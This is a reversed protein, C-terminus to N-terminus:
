PSTVRQWTGPVIALNRSRYRKPPNLLLNADHRLTVNDEVTVTSDAVVSGIVYTSDKLRLAGGTVHVLGKIVGRYTDDKQNDTVGEFPMGSPNFNTDCDAESLPQEVGITCPGRVILAPYDPRHPEWYMGEDILFLEDSDADIVLTGEVRCNEIEIQTGVIRIYYLGDPNVAGYPNSTHSLIVKEIKRYNSDGGSVPLSYWSIETAIGKYYDVVNPDPLELRPANNTVTGTITGFNVVSNADVPGNVTAWLYNRFTGHSSDSTGQCYASSGYVTLNASFDVTIQSVGILAKRLCQLPPPEAIATYHWVADGVEATATLRVSQDPDNQLDGDIEDVVKLRCVGNGLPMDPTTEGSDLGFQTRWYQFVVTSGVAAELMSQASFRAEYSEAASESVRHHVRAVMLGSLGIATVTLSAGLVTMYASGRRRRTTM